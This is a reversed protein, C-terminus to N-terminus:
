QEEGEINPKTMTHHIFAAVIAGALLSTFAEIM